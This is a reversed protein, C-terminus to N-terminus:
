RQGGSASVSFEMGDDAVVVEAGFAAGAVRALEGPDEESAYHTLVLGKAGALRAVTGAEHANMHGRPERDRGHAGLTAECLFVDAQRAVAIAAECPATDASYALIGQACIVRMAYTPVSHLTRAFGIRVDGLELERQPDYECLEFVPDVFDPDVHPHFAGLLDRVIPEGGPPVFLKLREHRVRPGYKLAGRLALVDACHDAHMHSIVVADLANYECLARLNAFAGPGLDLAIATTGSRLLYSSGARRPRLVACSSGAVAVRLDLGSM